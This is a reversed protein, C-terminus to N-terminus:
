SLYNYIFALAESPSACTNGDVVINTVSLDEIYFVTSAGSSIQLGKAGWFTFCYGATGGTLLTLPDSQPTEFGRLACANGNSTIIDYIFFEM